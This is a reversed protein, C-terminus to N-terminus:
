QAIHATYVGIREGVRVLTECNLETSAKVIDQDFTVAGRPYVVIVTSGGYYFAGTCQGRQLQAGQQDAGSVYKMSGVLMAGVAVVAFPSGDVASQLTMVSRRNECFVDMTGAENIAQPNVTYYTGPINTISTVVGSTPAHWRHYDQPALRAIAISGGDFQQALEPSGLLKELTFGFGKIWYRTALDITPFATLRCDAPSSVVAPNAPQAPPRAEPKIERAFFENFTAYDAPNPKVMEPMSDQLQFSQIFPLIHDKSAPDDYQKGMKESQAKLLDKVRQTHLVDEQLSGYYLLHMGLRVYTSMAEFEKAGTARNTIVYNGMHLRTELKEATEKSMFKHLFGHSQPQNAPLNIHAQPDADHKGAQDTIDVLAASTANFAAGKLEEPTLNPHSM